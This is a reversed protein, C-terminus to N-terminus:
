RRKAGIDLRNGTITYPPVPLNQPAPGDVVRGSLDYRSAHCPCQWGIGDAVRESPTRSHILCGLHTCTGGVVLWRSQTALTRNDDTALTKADLMRNRAYPDRRMQPTISRAHETEAFTRHRVFVPQGTWQMLRTEGEAITSLDVSTVDLRRSGRNPGMQALFPWFAAAIGVGVAAQAGLMIMDRRGSTNESPEGGSDESPRDSM